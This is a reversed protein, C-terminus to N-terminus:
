GTWKRPTFGATPRDAKSGEHYWIDGGQDHGWGTDLRWKKGGSEGIIFVHGANAWVTFDQGKGKSGYSSAFWGSTMGTDHKFMGARFLALSVLGSCDVGLPPHLPRLPGHGGGLVYNNGKANGLHKAIEQLGSAAGPDSTDARTAEQSIPEKHPAEPQKLTFDTALATPDRRMESILWYGPRSPRGKQGKAPKSPKKVTSGTSAPGFGNLKFVEGARFEFPECILTLRFETAVKREDWDFDWDVVWPDDREIVAAPKQQILTMESDFYVHQGDVFFAWNVEEALREMGDWYTENPNDETGIQFNFQQRYTTGGFGGGYADLLKEAEDKWQGYHHEAAADSSFNSRSGEVTVAILGPGWDAHANALHIAGGGQFGKGGKLFCKAMGETDDKQFTDMSGQFVGWYRSPPHGQNRIAKFGSEGIGACLMAILAREPTKDDAQDLARTVQDLQDKHAKGGAIRLDESTHIGGGKLTRRDKEKTKVPKESEIPQKKHIERSVFHLGGNAKVKAVLMQFFEARTKKARSTKVPGHHSLLYVAPRELFVLEITGDAKPNCQTIRWWNDSHDPDDPGPYQIELADLRGDDRVDFFGSDLLEFREDIITLTLNSAGHMTDEISITTLRGTFDVPPQKIRKRAASLQSIILDISANAELQQIDTAM